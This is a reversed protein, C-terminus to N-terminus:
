FVLYFLFVSFKLWMFTVMTAAYASPIDETYNRFVLSVSMGGIKPFRWIPIYQIYGKSNGSSTDRQIEQAQQINLGTFLETIQVTFM